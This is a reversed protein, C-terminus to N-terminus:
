KQANKSIKHRSKEIKSMSNAIIGESRHGGMCSHGEIRRKECYICIEAKASWSRNQCNRCNM